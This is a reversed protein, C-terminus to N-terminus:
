IDKAAEADNIYVYGRNEYFREEKAIGSPTTQFKRVSFENICFNEVVKLLQSGYGRKRYDEKIQLNLIYCIRDTIQVDFGSKGINEIRSSNPSYAIYVNGDREFVLVRHNEAYLEFGQRLKGRLRLELDKRQM